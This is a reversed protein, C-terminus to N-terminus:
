GYIIGLRDLEQKLYSPILKKLEYLGVYNGPVIECRDFEMSPTFSYNERIYNVIKENDAESIHIDKVYEDPADLGHIGALRDCSSFLESYLYMLKPSALMAHKGPQSYFSVHSDNLITVNTDSSNSENIFRYANLFRGHFSGEAGAIIGKDNLYVWIHELDYLHQIDYDLYYTYELVRCAGPFNEFDFIRNFSSSKVRNETYECFGVKRIRFPEKKDMFIIPSYKFADEIM